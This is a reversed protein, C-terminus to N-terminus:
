GEIETRYESGDAGYSGSIVVLRQGDMCFRDNADYKISGRAGDQALTKPCRGISPLGDLSWGIGLLGNAGQSTYTLSLSPIMGATGPPVVIPITYPAGGTGSVGFKGPLTMGQAAAPTPTMAFSFVALGLATATAISLAKTTPKRAAVGAVPVPRVGEFHGACRHDLSLM